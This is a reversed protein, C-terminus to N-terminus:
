SVADSGLTVVMQVLCQEAGQARVNLAVRGRWPQHYDVILRHGPTIVGIRGLVEIVRGGLSTPLTIPMRLPAGVEMRAGAELRWGPVLGQEIATFVASAPGDFM